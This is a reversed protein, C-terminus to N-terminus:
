IPWLQQEATAGSRGSQPAKRRLPRHAWQEVIFESAASARKPANTQVGITSLNVIQDSRRERMVPLLGLIRKVPGFFNLQMTHEFDHFRDYSLALSRRISRGAHNVLVDITPHGALVRELLEDISREASLDASYVEALGGSAEIERAAEELRATSRAVLLVRGGARGLELAAARGIGSSAGTVMVTRGHVASHLARAALLPGAVSQAVRGM